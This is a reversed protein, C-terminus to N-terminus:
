LSNHHERFLNTKHALPCKSPPSPNHLRHNSNPLQLTSLHSNNNAQLKHLSLNLHFRNSILNLLLLSRNVQLYQNNKLMKHLYRSLLHSNSLVQSLSLHRLQKKIRLRKKKQWSRIKHLRLSRLKKIPWWKIMLLRRLKLKKKLRKKLQLKERKLM